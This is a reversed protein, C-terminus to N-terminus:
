DWDTVETFNSFNEDVKWVSSYNYQANPNVTGNPTFEADHHVVVMVEAPPNPYGAYGIAGWKNWDVTEEDYAEKVAGYAAMAGIRLYHPQKYQFEANNGGTTKIRLEVETGPTVGSAKATKDTANNHNKGVFRDQAILFYANIGNTKSADGHEVKFRAVLEKTAADYSFKVDKVRAYPTVTFDKTNAGKKITFEETIPYFNNTQAQIKYSGSFVLNNTYSGDTRAYWTQATPKFTGKEPTFSGEQEYITFGYNDPVGILVPQSTGSDIFKGTITADYGDMNDFEFWDCATAMLLLPIFYLIKKMNM